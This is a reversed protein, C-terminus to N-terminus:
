KLPNKYVKVFNDPRNDIDLEWVPNDTAFIENIRELGPKNKDMGAQSLIVYDINLVESDKMWKASGETSCKGPFFQCSGYYNTWIKMQKPDGQSKIFDVAEYGGYGWATSIISNKPLLYSTYNFYFPKITKVSYYSVSLAVIFLVFSERMNLNKVIEYFGIGAIALAVPYLVISYRVQVLVGMKTVALLYVVIFTSFSFLLYDFDSKRFISKVWAFLMLFLTIPTLAFVLPKGQVAIQQYIEFNRLNESVVNLNALNFFDKGASWTMLIVAVGFTLLLYLAKPLIIKLFQLNKTFFKVIFSKLIIADALIFASLYACAYFIYENGKFNFLSDFLLNPKVLVAPMLLSFIGIGLACILFFGLSIFIAKKRFSGRESLEQYEFLIYGLLIAMFFPFLMIAVYKSLLAFGLFLAALFGDIFKTKQLFLLFSLISAFCFSWLLTDPNIIQSIGILVPSLMIFSAAVLALWHKKTLRWLALFFFLGMIGNFIVLPLRYIYYTEATKEPNYNITLNKKSFVKDQVNTEFWTGIGSVYALSIGPKDNIRTEKWNKAAMADWYEQIRGTYLDSIWLHEDATEFQTLHQLGFWFYLAAPIIILLLLWNLKKNKATIEM